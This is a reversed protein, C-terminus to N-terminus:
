TAERESLMARYISEALGIGGADSVAKAHESALMGAFQEEGIGGGFADQADGLGASQLMTSLFSAELAKAAAWVEPDRETSINQSPSQGIAPVTM